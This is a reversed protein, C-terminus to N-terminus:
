AAGGVPVLFGFDDMVHTPGIAHWSLGQKDVRDMHLSYHAPHLKLGEARPNHWRVYADSNGDLDRYELQTAQLATSYRWYAETDPAARLVFGTNGAASM